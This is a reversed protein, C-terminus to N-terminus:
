LFLDERFLLSNALVLVLMVIVVAVTVVLLLTKVVVFLLLLLVLTKERKSEHIRNGGVGAEKSDEQTRVRQTAIRERERRYFCM